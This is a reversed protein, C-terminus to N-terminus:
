FNLFPLHYGNVERNVSNEIDLIVKMIGNKDDALIDKKMLDFYDEINQKLIPRNEIETNHIDVVDSIIIAISIAPGAFEGGLFSGAKGLFSAGTKAVGKAAVKAMMKNIAISAAKGFLVTGGGVGAGALAKLQLPFNRGNTRTINVSIEKLYKDWDTRPINYNVRIKEFNNELDDTYAQSIDKFINKLEFAAIEPRFVRNTFERIVEQQIKENATPTSKNFLRKGEQLIAQLGFKQQTWYGFYWDLFDSDQNPNDVRRMMGNIWVDFEDAGHKLASKRASVLATSIDMKFKKDQEPLISDNTTVAFTNIAPNSILTSGFAFSRGISSVIVLILIAWLITSVVQWGIKLIKQWSPITPVSNILILSTTLILFGHKKIINCKISLIAMWNVLNNSKELAKSVLM